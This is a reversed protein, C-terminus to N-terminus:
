RRPPSSAAMSNGVVAAVRQIGLEECFDHIWRGYAPMSIDWDPM